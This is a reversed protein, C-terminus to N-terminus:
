PPAVQGIVNAVFRNLRQDVIEALVLVFRPWEVLNARTIGLANATHAVVHRANVIEDLKDALFSTAEIRGWAAEFAQRESDFPNGAGIAKFM